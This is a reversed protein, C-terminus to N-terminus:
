EEKGHTPQKARLNKQQLALAAPRPSCHNICTPEHEPSGPELDCVWYNHRAPKAAGHRIPDEWVPPQAQTEQM